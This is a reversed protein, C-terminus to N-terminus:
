NSARQTLGRKKRYKTHQKFNEHVQNSGFYKQGEELKKAVLKLAKVKVEEGSVCLLHIVMAVLSVPSLLATVHGIVDSIKNVLTLSLKNNHASDQKTQKNDSKLITHKSLVTEYDLTTKLISYCTPLPFSLLSPLSPPPPSLFLPISLVCVCVCM